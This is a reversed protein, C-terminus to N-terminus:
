ALGKCVQPYGRSAQPSFYINWSVVKDVAELGHPMDGPIWLGRGPFLVWVEQGTRVKAVGQLPAIFQRNMPMSRSKAEQTISSNGYGRFATRRPMGSM